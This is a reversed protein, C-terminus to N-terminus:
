SGDTWCKGGDIHGAELEREPVLLTNGGMYGMLVALDVHATNSDLQRPQYALGPLM